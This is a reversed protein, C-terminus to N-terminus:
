ADCCNTAEPDAAASAPVPCRSRMTWWVGTLVLLETLLWAWAAGVAGYAHSLVAMLVVELAVSTALVGLLHREQGAANLAHVNPLYFAYPIISLVLIRGPTIASSFQPGYFWNVLQPMALFVILALPLVTAAFMRTGRRRVRHWGADVERTSSLRSLFVTGFGTAVLMFPSLMRYASAYIGAVSASTVVLVVLADIRQYGGSILGLGVFPRSRAFLRSADPGRDVSAHKYASWLLWAASIGGAVALSALVGAIGLDASLAAPTLIVVMCGCGARALAASRYRHMGAHVASLLSLQTLVVYATGALAGLGLGTFGGLVFWGVCAAATTGAGTVLLETQLIKTLFPRGLGDAATERLALIPVGSGLGSVFISGIAHAVAYRGLEASGLTRAVLVTTLFLSAQFIAGSAVLGGTVAIARRPLRHLFGSGRKGPFALTTRDNDIGGDGAISSGEPKM